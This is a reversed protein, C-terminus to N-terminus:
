IRLRAHGSSSIWASGQGLRLGGELRLRLGLRRRVCIGLLLRLRLRLGPGLGPGIPAAPTLLGLPSLTSSKSTSARPLLLSQRVRRLLPNRLLGKRAESSM